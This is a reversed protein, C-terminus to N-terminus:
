RRNRSGRLYRGGLTRTCSDRALPATGDRRRSGIQCLPSSSWFCLWGYRLGGFWALRTPGDCLLTRMQYVGALKVSELLEAMTSTQEPYSIIEASNRQRPEPRTPDYRIPMAKRRFWMGVS